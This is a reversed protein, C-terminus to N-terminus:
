CWSVAFEDVATILRQLQPGGRAMAFGRQRGSYAAQVLQLQVWQRLRERDLEAADAFIDLERRIVTLLDDRGLLVGARAKFMMFADYAPDGIWGKPDVALWPERDGRLINRPHLDGHVVLEPQHRALEDVIALASDVVPTPLVGPYERAGRRLQEEWSDALDQLRPLGAPAPISLRHCLRGALTAIEDGDELDALRSPHARELLMAFREDDREYLHAAGRGNWAAFAAPEHVNGPHPFSVKLVAPTGDPGPEAAAGSARSAATAASLGLRRVPVILGVHGHM